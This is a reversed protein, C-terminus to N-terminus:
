EMTIAMKKRNILKKEISANETCYYLTRASVLKFPFVNGPGFFGFSYKKLWATELIEYNFM